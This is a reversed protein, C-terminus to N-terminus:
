FPMVLSRSPAVILLWSRMPILESTFPAKTVTSDTTLTNSFRYERGNITVLEEEGPHRRGVARDKYADDSLAAYDQTSVTM